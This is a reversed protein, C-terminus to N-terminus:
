SSILGSIIPGSGIEVAIIPHLYEPLPPSDFFKHLNLLFFKEESDIESYYQTVYAQPSFFDSYLQEVSPTGTKGKETEKSSNAAESFNM